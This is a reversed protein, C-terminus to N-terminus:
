TEWMRFFSPTWERVSMARSDARRETAGFYIRWRLGGTHGGRVQRSAGVPMTGYDARVVVDPDLLAVLAGFDGKRSACLFVDVVQRRWSVSRRERSLMRVPVPEDALIHKFPV